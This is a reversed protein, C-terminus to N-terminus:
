QALPLYTRCFRCCPVGRDNRSPLSNATVVPKPNAQDAESLTPVSRSPERFRKRHKQVLMAEQLAAVSKYASPPKGDPLDSEPVRLSIWPFEDEQEAKQCIFQLEAIWEQVDDKSPNFMRAQHLTALAMSRSAAFQKTILDCWAQPTAPGRKKTNRLHFQQVAASKSETLAANIAMMTSAHGWNDLYIMVMSTFAGPRKPDLSVLKPPKLQQVPAADPGEETREICAPHADRFASNAAEEKVPSPLTIKDLRKSLAAHSAKTLEVWKNLELQVETIVKKGMEDVKAEMDLIEQKSAKTAALVEVQKFLMTNNERLRRAEAEVEEQMERLQQSLSVPPPLSSKPPGMSTPTSPPPNATATPPGM